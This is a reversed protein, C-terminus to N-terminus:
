SEPDPLLNKRGRLPFRGAFWYAFPLLLIDRALGVWYDPMALISVSDETAVESSLGVVVAILQYDRWAILLAVALAIPRWLSEGGIRRLLYGIPVVLLVSILTDFIQIYISFLTASLPLIADIAWSLHWQIAPMWAWFMALLSSASLWIAAVVMSWFFGQLVRNTESDPVMHFGRAKTKEFAFM